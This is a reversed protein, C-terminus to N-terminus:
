VSFMWIRKGINGNAQVMQEGTIVEEGSELDIVKYNVKKVSQGKKVSIPLVLLISGVVIAFLFSLIIIHTTSLGRKRTKKM